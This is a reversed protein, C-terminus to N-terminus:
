EDDRTDSVQVSVCQQVSINCRKFLFTARQYLLVLTRRLPLM